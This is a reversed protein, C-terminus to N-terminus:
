PLDALLPELAAKTSTGYARAIRQLLEAPVIKYEQTGVSELVLTALACGLRVCQEVPLLRAAAALFGARLADGVGTPDVPEQAPLAPIHRVEGTREMIHVGEAGQTSIWTGIRDLVDQRTWGTRELLLACEYENTFLFRAGTVLAQTQERDLRALQQSSRAPRTVGTGASV